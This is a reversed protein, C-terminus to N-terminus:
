LGLNRCQIEKTLRKRRYSDNQAALIETGQQNLYNSTDTYGLDARGAKAVITIQVSRIESITAAVGGDAKLYVFNLADINEAVPQNAATSPSKRGLKQIGDTDTYLSYTIDEDSDNCVGDSFSDEDAEDVSSDNDNDIGDSEAGTIDLTFRFSSAGNTEIAAGADDTPDCGAMRIEREMYYMAARLNQQIDVVQEQVTAAKQQSVYTGYISAMVVLSITMAILLEVLTFADKNLNFLRRPKELM